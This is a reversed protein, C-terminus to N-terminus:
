NTVAALQTIGTPLNNGPTSFSDNSFDLRIIISFYSPVNSGGPWSEFNNDTVNQVQLKKVEQLSFVAM